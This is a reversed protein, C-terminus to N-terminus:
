AASKAEARPRFRGYFTEDAAAMERLLACPAFREGYLEAFRDCRAVFAKAGVCDIYSLPGGTYPAYGFGFIAGVDAERVDTLVDEEFCRATELAQITLFRDMLERVDLTDTDLQDPVIEAIGPWLRKPGDVFRM